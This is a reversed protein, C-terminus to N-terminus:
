EKIILTNTNGWHTSIGLLKSIHIPFKTEVQLQKWKEYVGDHGSYWDNKFKVDEEFYYAYHNFKQPLLLGLGNGGVLKPPEHTEFLEGNWNWLRRYPLAYGEGWMGKVILDKGVYYNCLFCGTKGKHQKLTYEAQEINDKSWQEDIDIEWLYCNNTIKKIEEIAKNVQQDKSDWMKEPEIYVINNYQKSINKLFETTGDISKGNNHYNSSMNRCWSTSGKNNSAGEVIIWYDFINPVLKYYDNHKLHHLGNLIITFAIRM